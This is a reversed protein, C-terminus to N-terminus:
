LHFRRNLPVVALYKSHNNKGVNVKVSVFRGAIQHVPIISDRSPKFFDNLWREIGCDMGNLSYHYRRSATPAPRYWHVYALHHVVKKDRMQRRKWHKNSSKEAWQEKSRHHTRYHHHHESTKSKTTMINALESFAQKSGRTYILNLKDFNSILFTAIL